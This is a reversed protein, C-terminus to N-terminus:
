SQAGALEELAAPERQSVVMGDEMVIGVAGSSDVREIWVQTDNADAMEALLRLGSEDLLSGDRIRLVRLKPNMAMAIACSARLQEADSGQDFPIGNLLVAGEGFGIGEVPMKAAAIAERKDQERAAIQAAIQEAEAEAEALKQKLEDVKNRRAIDDNIQQAEGLRARIADPNAPEPIAPLTGFAQEMRDAEAANTAAVELLREAQRRDKAVQERTQEIRKLMAARKEREREIAANHKGVAAIEDVLANTDISEAPLDDAVPAASTIQARIIKISRNVATRETRDAENLREIQEFDVAVPVLQRLTEFQEKPKQRAFALPDFSITGLLKDLVDQPKKYRLGDRNEVTLTSGSETFRRYVVLDGLDLRISAFTEGKRIPQSQIGAAGELAWMISDLVSSKGSGNRGTIQVLNGSPTIQVVSLRKVNEARLELIKM